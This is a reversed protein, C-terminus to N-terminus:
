QEFRIQIFTHDAPVASLSRPKCTKLSNREDEARHSGKLSEAGGGRCFNLHQFAINKDLLCM